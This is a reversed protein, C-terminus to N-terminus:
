QTQNLLSFPENKKQILCVDQNITQLVLIGSEELRALVEPAPHNYPNYEAVSIVALDPTVAELFEESTSTKSGHHAVKLVDADINELVGEIKKTIDGTLLIKQDFSNLMIVISTENINKVEKNELSEFPYIVDLFQSDSIKINLNDEAIWINEEQILEMWEQNLLADSKVGTHLINKVKYKKLVEVLGYLHDKDPHTLVILDITRDWFPMHEELRAIVSDDPGGDILIQKNNAEIFISDGQGVNLFCIELNKDQTFPFIISWTILNAIILFSLIIKKM